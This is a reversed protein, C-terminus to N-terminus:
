PSRKQLKTWLLRWDMCWQNRVARSLKRCKSSLINWEQKAAKVADVTSNNMLAQVYQRQAAAASRRLSRLQPPASRPKVGVDRNSDNCSRKRVQGNKNFAEYIAGTFRHVCDDVVQQAAEKSLCPNAASSHLDSM